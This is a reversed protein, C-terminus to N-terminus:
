LAEAPTAWYASGIRALLEGDRDLNLDDIHSIARVGTVANTAFAADMDAVASVPVPVARTAVDSPALAQQILGMTVGPLCASEPWTVQGSGIFGINWTPGESIVSDATVFLADDYGDLQATRRQHLQGFLGTHKVRPLDRDFRCTRVRLPPQAAPPAPRTTVLIKPQVRRGPRSLDFDPAFVTVRVTVPGGHGPIARAVLDRVRDPDIAQGFLHESDAVLRALHMALGRVAMDEVRMSTFHGYNYLALSELDPADVGVGDVHV